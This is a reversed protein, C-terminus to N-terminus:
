FDLPKIEYKKQGKELPQMVHQLNGSGYNVTITTDKLASATFRGMEIVFSSTKATGTFDSLDIVPNNKSVKARGLYMYDDDQTLNYVKVNGRMLFFWVGAAAALIGALIGLILGWNINMPERPEGAAGGNDGNNKHNSSLEEKYLLEDRLSTFEAISSEIANLEYQLEANLGANQEVDLSEGDTLDLDAQYLIEDRRNELEMLHDEVEDLTWVTDDPEAANIVEGIFTVTFTNAGEVTRSVEGRFYATTVYGSTVSRTGTGTYVAHATYTSAIREFDIADTQAADWRVDHLTLTRGGATISAPILSIDTNSLNPFTRYERITFNQSRHGAVQTNVSSLDLSLVGAYGDESEFHLTDDLQSLIANLNQTATDIIVVEVHHRISLRESRNRTIEGLTFNFGEREFSETRIHAPDEDEALEYIRVVRRSGGLDIEEVQVPFLLQANSTQQTENPPSEDAHVAVSGMFIGGILLAALIKAAKKKM